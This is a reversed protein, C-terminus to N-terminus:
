SNLEVAFQFAGDEDRDYIRLAPQSDRMLGRGLALAATIPVAPFIDISRAQPYDAEIMSLYDHYCARFREFSEQAMFIDRHPNEGIPGIRWVTASERIDAPLDDLPPSGSVALVLAVREREGEQLLSAEFSVVPAGPDWGWGEDLGRQKQYLDTPIKDDLLYGALAILPIRGFAFVSLHRLRDRKVGEAVKRTLVDELQERARQWYGDSGPAPLDRLDVEIDSDRFGLGYRPYRGVKAVAERVTEASLDVSAGRISGMIRLVVTERDEGMATQYRIRDEQRRKIERLAEVTFEGRTVRADITRHDEGCLLLVNEAKNREDVPLPDDGRPSAADPKWGVNHALEGLPLAHGTYENELLYRNCLQCRGGARVWLKVREDVPIHRTAKFIDPDDAM